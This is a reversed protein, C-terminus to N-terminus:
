EIPASIVPISVEEITAQASNDRVDGIGVDDEANSNISEDDNGNDSFRSKLSNEHLSQEDEDKDSLISVLSTSKSRKKYFLITAARQHEIKVTRIGKRIGKARILM